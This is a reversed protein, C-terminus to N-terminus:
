EVKRVRRPRKPGASFSLAMVDSSALANSCADEISTPGWVAMVGEGHKL